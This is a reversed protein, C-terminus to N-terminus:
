LSVGGGSDRGQVSSSWWGVEVAAQIVVSIVEGPPVIKAASRGKKSTAIIFIPSSLSLSGIQVYKPAQREVKEKEKKKKKSM